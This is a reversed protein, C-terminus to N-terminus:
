KTNESQFPRALRCPIGPDRGGAFGHGVLIKYFMQAFFCLGLPSPATNLFLKV